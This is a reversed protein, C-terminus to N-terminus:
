KVSKIKLFGVANIARPNKIADFQSNIRSKRDARFDLDFEASLLRTLHVRRFDLDEVQFTTVVIFVINKIVADV